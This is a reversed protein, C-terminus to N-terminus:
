IGDWWNYNPAYLQNPIDWLQATWVQEIPLMMTYGASGRGGINLLPLHFNMHGNFLNVNDFGTLAYTGAPAGRSLGAPTSADYNPQALTTLPTISVLLFIWAVIRLALWNSKTLSLQM